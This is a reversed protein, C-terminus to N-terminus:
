EIIRKVGIFRKSYYPATTTDISIGSSCASHIFTIEGTVPDGDIVIGVHGVRGSKSNRGTFFILDGPQVQMPDVETGNYRYQDSSSRKLDYGFQAFMYSTFGSCDFGKPTIGGRRYRTGIFTRALDLMDKATIVADDSAVPRLERAHIGPLHKTLDIKEMAAYRDAVDHSPMRVQQGYATVAFMTFILPILIRKIVDPLKSTSVYIGSGAATIVPM